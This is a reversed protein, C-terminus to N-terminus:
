RGPPITVEGGNIWKVMTGTVKYKGDSQKQFYLEITGTFYGEEVGFRGSATLNGEVTLKESGNPERVKASSVSCSRSENPLLATRVRNMMGARNLNQWRYNDALYREFVGYDSREVARVLQQTISVVQERESEQLVDCLYVGGMLCAIVVIGFLHAVRRNTLFLALPILGIVALTFYAWLPREAMTGPAVLGFCVGALLLLIYQGVPHYVSQTIKSM